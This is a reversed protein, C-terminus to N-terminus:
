EDSEEDDSCEDSDKDESNENDKLITYKPNPTFINIDKNGRRLNCDWCSLVVNGKSHGKCNNVRDVSVQDPDKTGNELLLYKECHYCQWQQHNLMKKIWEIDLNFYRNDRKDHGRCTKILKADWHKCSSKKQIEKKHEKNEHYYKRYWENNKEKNNKIWEKNKSVLHKKNDQFYQKKYSRLQDRNLDYYQQVKEKREKCHMWCKTRGEINVRRNCITGKKAGNVFKWDCFVQSM